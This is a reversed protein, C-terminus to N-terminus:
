NYNPCLSLGETRKQQKDTAPPPTPLSTNAPRRPGPHFTRFSPYDGLRQPLLHSFLLRGGLAQPFFHSFSSQGGPSPPSPVSIVFFGWSFLLFTLTNPSFHLFLLWDGLRRPSFTCFSSGAGWAGPPFNCFSSGAGWAGPPFLVFLLITGWAIPSFSCFCCFLGLFVFSIDSRQTFLTFLPALGGLAQPFFYLFFSQGGPSPPFPVSVVFFGWSILLFTLANPSLQLFLLWDGLRRPSHSFACFSFCSVRCWLEM